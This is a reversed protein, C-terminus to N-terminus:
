VDFVYGLPLYYPIAVLVFGMVLACNTVSSESFSPALFLSTL